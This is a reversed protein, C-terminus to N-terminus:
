VKIIVLIIYLKKRTFVLHQSRNYKRDVRFARDYIGGIHSVIFVDFTNLHKMCFTNYKVIVTFVDNKTGILNFICLQLFHSNHIHHRLPGTRM